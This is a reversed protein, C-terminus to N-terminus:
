NRPVPRCIRGLAKAAAARVAAHNDVSLTTLCAIVEESYYRTEGLGYAAGARVDSHNDQALRFLLRAIEESM